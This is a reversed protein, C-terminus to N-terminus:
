LQMYFFLVAIFHRICDKYPWIYIYVYIYRNASGFFHWIWFLLMMHNWDKLNSIKIRFTSWCVQRDTYACAHKRICMLTKSAFAYPLTRGRALFLCMAQGPVLTGMLTKKKELTLSFAFWHKWGRVFCLM